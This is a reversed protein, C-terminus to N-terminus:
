LATREVRDSEHHEIRTALDILSPVDLILAVEGSGLITSGSIGRVMKFLPGLPKIVTQFDGVLEDVVLGALRGAYNVVVINERRQVGDNKEFVDRLRVFPLVKGRLNVYNRGSATEIDDRRLELCEVIMSLPVVFAGGAVNVLFGDIIALTLPLRIRTLTGVGPESEIDITGRLSLINQKVVDMGVGRGSINSVADATSFGPEFILNNIERATLTAGASILGREVAKARIKDANLGGGDDAVEIVISGSDHYAHLQLTGVPSKGAEIRRERTELGHDLSNRVLHTLPDSIKEVVSKDLETDAGSIQLDVDKGLEASLDRVVRQFRTFTAGIPVM